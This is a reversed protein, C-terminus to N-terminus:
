ARQAPLSSGVSASHSYAARPPRSPASNAQAPCGDCPWCMAPLMGPGSDRPPRSRAFRERQLTEAWRSRVKRCSRYHGPTSWSNTQCCGEESILRRVVRPRLSATTLFFLDGRQEGAFPGATKSPECPAQSWSASQAPQRRAPQLASTGVSQRQHRSALFSGRRGRLLAHSFGMAVRGRHFSIARPM